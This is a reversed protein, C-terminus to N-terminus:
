HNSATKMRLSSIPQVKAELVGSSLRRLAYMWRKLFSRYTKAFINQGEPPCARWLYNLRFGEEQLFPIAGKKWFGGRVSEVYKIYPPADSTLYLMRSNDERNLVRLYSDAQWISFGPKCVKLLFEKSWFACNIGAVLPESPVLRLLQGLEPLQDGKRVCLDCFLGGRCVFEDFIKELAMSDVQQSLFMDDLILLVYDQPIDKLAVALNDSWSRDSGTQLSVIGKKSYSRHNTILYIPKTLESWFKELFHFFYPWLDRNNDCSAVLLAWSPQASSSSELALKGQSSPLNSHLM